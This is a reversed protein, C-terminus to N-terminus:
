CDDLIALHVMCGVFCGVLLRIVSYNGLIAFCMMSDVVPNTTCGLCGALRGVRECDALMSWCGGFWSGVMTWNGFGRALVGVLRFCLLCMRVISKTQTYM